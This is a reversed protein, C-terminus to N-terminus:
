KTQLIQRPKIIYLKLLLLIGVSALAIILVIFPTTIHSGINIVHLSAVVIFIISLIGHFMRWSRYSMGLRNRFLSTMGIVFMLLWASIGLVVGLSDFTSIISIFAEEPDVGAEFYRPLVIFFPHLMLVATFAYGIVKHLKNVKVMKIEKHLDRYGRALFFQGIMLFFSLIILLSLSEKLITNKHFDGLSWLLLPLGMFILLYRILQTKMIVGMICNSTYIKGTNHYHCGGPLVDQLPSLDSLRGPLHDSGERNQCRKSDRRMPLDRHLDRLRHM